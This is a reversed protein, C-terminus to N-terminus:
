INLDTETFSLQFAIPSIVVTRGECELIFSDFHVGKMKFVKGEKFKVEISECEGNTGMLIEGIIPYKNTFVKM